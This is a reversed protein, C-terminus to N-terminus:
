CIWSSCEYNFCDVIKVKNVVKECSFILKEIKSLVGQRSKVSRKQIFKNRVNRWCLQRNRVRYNNFRRFKQTRFYYRLVREVKQAKEKQNQSNALCSSVIDKGRGAFIDRLNQSCILLAFHQLVIYHVLSVCLVFLWDEM